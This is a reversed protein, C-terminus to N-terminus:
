GSKASPARFPALPLRMIQGHATLALFYPAHPLGEGMDQDSPTFRADTTIAAVISVTVMKVHKFDARWIRLFRFSEIPLTYAIGDSAFVCDPGAYQRPDCGSRRGRGQGPPRVSCDGLAAWGDRTLM